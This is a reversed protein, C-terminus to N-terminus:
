NIQKLSNLGFLVEGFQSDIIIWNSQFILCIFELKWFSSFTLKLQKFQNYQGFYYFVLDRM